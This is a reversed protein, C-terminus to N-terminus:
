CMATSKLVGQRFQWDKFVAALSANNAEPGQAFTPGIIAWVIALVLVCCWGCISWKKTRFFM